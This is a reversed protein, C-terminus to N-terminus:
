DSAKRRAADRRAEDVYIPADAPLNAYLVHCTTDSWERRVAEQDAPDSVLVFTWAGRHGVYVRLLEPEDPDDEIGVILASRGAISM